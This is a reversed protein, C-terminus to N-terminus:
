CVNNTSLHIFHWTPMKNAVNSHTHFDLTSILQLSTAYLQMHTANYIHYQICCLADTAVAVVHRIASLALYIGHTALTWQLQFVWNCAWNYFRINKLIFSLVMVFFTPVEFNNIFM